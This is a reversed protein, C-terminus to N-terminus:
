ARKGRRLMEHVESVSRSGLKDDLNRGIAELTDKETPSWESFSTGELKALLLKEDEASFEQRNRAFFSELPPPGLLTGQAVTIFSHSAVSPGTAMAVGGVFFMGATAIGIALSFSVRGTAKRRPQPFHETVNEQLDSISSLNWLRRSQPKIAM